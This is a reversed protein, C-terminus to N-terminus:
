EGDTNVVGKLDLSGNARPVFAFNGIQMQEFIHAKQINIIDEELWMTRIKNRLMAWEDNGFQTIVDADERGIEVVGNSYRLYGSLDDVHVSDSEPNFDNITISSVKMQVEGTEGDVWLVDNSGATIRIRQADISGALLLDTHIGEGTIANKFTSGGDTSVGIGESNAIVVLNPDDKSIMLLGNDTVFVETEAGLLKRTAAVVANDLASLPLQKRGETIDRIEKIAHKINSQRRSGLSDSGLTVKLKLLESDYARVEQINIVRFEEKLKIRDDVLFVRDGLIPKALPYGQERLDHLTATISVKLSSDIVAKLREDMTEAIKIRGDKVPPAHREGIIDALPSRYERVLNPEGGEEYDGFGRAYTWLEEADVEKSINSANLKYHYIFETDRGIQKQLRVENGVITFEAGYRNLCDKFQELKSKGNGFGEWQVATFSDVLSFSYPTDAFIYEFATIATMHEDIGEYIRHTNLYDFIKPVAKVEVNLKNGKGKPNTYIIVWEMSDEDVLEWMEGIDHMFLENTRTPYIMFSLSRDGSLSKDTTVTAELEYENGSLDVLHM